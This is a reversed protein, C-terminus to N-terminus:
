FESFFPSDYGPEPVDRCFCVRLGAFLVGTGGRDGGEGHQLCIVPNRSPCCIFRCFDKKERACGTKDQQESMRKSGLVRNGERSM